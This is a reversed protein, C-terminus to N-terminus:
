KMPKSYISSNLHYEPSAFHLTKVKGTGGFVHVPEGDPHGGVTKYMYIKYKGNNNTGIILYDFDNEKFKTDQWYQYSIYDITEGSPLSPPTMDVDNTKAWINHGYIRNNKVCYLIPASTTLLGSNLAYDTAGGVVTNGPYVELSDIVPNREETNIRFILKEQTSPNKMIFMGLGKNSGSGIFTGGYVPDLPLNEFNQYQKLKSQLMLATLEGMDALVELSRLKSNWYYLNFDPTVFSPGFSVGETYEVPRMIGSYKKYSDPNDGAYSTYAGDSTLLGVSYGLRVVRKYEASFPFYFRNEEKFVEKFDSYRLFIVKNATTTVCLINSFNNVDKGVALSDPDLFAQSYVIDLAIPAGDLSSKYLDSNKLINEGLKNESGDEPISYFDVDTKTDNEMSKLIFFGRSRAVSVEFEKYRSIDTSNSTVKFYAKYRGQPVQLVANLNKEKGIVTIENKKGKDAIHAPYLGWEYKLDDQSYDTEVTPEIALLGLQPLNYKDKIGTIKIEKVGVSADKIVKMEEPIYRGGSICSNLIGSVCFVCFIKIYKKM